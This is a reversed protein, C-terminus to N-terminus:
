LLEVDKESIWVWAAMNDFLLHLICTEKEGYTNKGRAASFEVEHGHEVVDLLVCIRGTTVDFSQSRYWFLEDNLRIIGGTHAKLCKLFDM